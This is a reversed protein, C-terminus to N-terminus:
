IYLFLFFVWILTLVYMSIHNSEIFTLFVLVFHRHNCRCPVSLMLLLCTICLVSHDFSASLVLYYRQQVVICGPNNVYLLYFVTNLLPNLSLSLILQLAISSSLNFFFSTPNIIIYLYYYIALALFLPPPSM